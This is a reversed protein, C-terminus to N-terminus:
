LFAMLSSVIISGLLLISAAVLIDRAELMKTWGEIGESSRYKARLSRSMMLSFVILLIGGELFLFYSLVGM